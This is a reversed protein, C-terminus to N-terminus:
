STWTGPEHCGKHCCFILKKLAGSVSRGTLVVRVAPLLLLPSAQSQKAQGLGHSQCESHRSVFNHIRTCWVAIQDTADKGPAVFCSQSLFAAAGLEGVLPQYPAGM